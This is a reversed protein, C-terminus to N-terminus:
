DLATQTDPNKCADYNKSSHCAFPLKSPIVKKQKNTQPEAERVGVEQFFAILQLFFYPHQQILVSLQQYLLSVLFCGITFFHPETIRGALVYM